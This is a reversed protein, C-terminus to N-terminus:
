RTFRSFVTRAFGAIHAVVDNFDLEFDPRGSGEMPMSPVYPKHEAYDVIDQKTEKIRRAQDLGGGRIFAVIKDLECTDFWYGHGKCWDLIVGSCGAFNKRNMFQGCEPCPIYRITEERMEQLVADIEEEPRKGLFSAVSSQEGREVLDEFNGEPIWLGGCGQCETFGGHAADRQALKGKCRPCPVDLDTWEIRDPNISTGCGGCFRAGQLTRSYCMPCVHGLRQEMVSFGSGCYSCSKAGPTLNAGCSSCHAAEKQQVRPEPVTILDGCRCHLKSGAVLNGVDYQQRCGNCAVLM